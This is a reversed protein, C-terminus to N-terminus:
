SPITKHQEITWKPTCTVILKLNGKTYYRENPEILVVDGEELLFTEEEIVAKGIGSLVYYMEKSKTNYALGTAPYRGKIEIIAVNMDEDGLPYETSETSGNKFTKSNKFKVFKM